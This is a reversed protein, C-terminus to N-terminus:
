EGRLLLIDHLLRLTDVPFARQLTARMCENQGARGEEHGVRDDPVSRHGCRCLGALEM